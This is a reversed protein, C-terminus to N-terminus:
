EMDLPRKCVTSALRLLDLTLHQPTFTGAEEHSRVDVGVWTRVDSILGNSSKELTSPKIFNRALDAAADALGDFTSLALM